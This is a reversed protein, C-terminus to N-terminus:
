SPRQTPRGAALSVVHKFVGALVDPDVYIDDDDEMLATWRRRSSGAAFATFKDLDGWPHPQGDPGAFQMDGDDSDDDEDPDDVIFGDIGSEDREVADAPPEYNEPEWDVPVGDDDVLSKRITRLMGELARDGRAAKSALAIAAADVQGSPQFRHLEPKGNRSFEVEFADPRPEDRRKKARITKM